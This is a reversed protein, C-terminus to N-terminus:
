RKPKNREVAAEYKAQKLDKKLKSINSDKSRKYCRECTYDLTDDSDSDTISYVDDTKNIMSSRFETIRRLKKKLNSIKEDRSHIMHKITKNYAVIGYKEIFEMEYYSIGDKEMKLEAM